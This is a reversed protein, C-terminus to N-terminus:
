VNGTILDSINMLATAFGGNQCKEGISLLAARLNKISKIFCCCLIIENPVKAYFRANMLLKNAKIM